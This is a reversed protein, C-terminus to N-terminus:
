EGPHGARKDKAFGCGKTFTAAEAIFKEGAFFDIEADAEFAEGSFVSFADDDEAIMGEEGGGSFDMEVGEAFM